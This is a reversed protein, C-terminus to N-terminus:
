LKASMNLENKLDEEKGVKTKALRQLSTESIKFKELGLSNKATVCRETKLDQEKSQFTTIQLKLAGVEKLLHEKEEKMTHREKRLEREKLKMDIGAQFISEFQKGDGSTEIMNVDIKPEM